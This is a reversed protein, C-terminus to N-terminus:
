PKITREKKITTNFTGKNDFYGITVIAGDLLRVNIYSEVDIYDKKNIFNLRNFDETTYQSFIIKLANSIANKVHERELNNYTKIVEQQSVDKTWTHKPKLIAM